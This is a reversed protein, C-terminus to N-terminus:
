GLFSSMLHLSGGLFYYMIAATTVSTVIVTAIPKITNIWSANVRNKIKTQTLEFIVGEKMGTGDEGLLARHIQDIEKKLEPCTPCNAYLKSKESM